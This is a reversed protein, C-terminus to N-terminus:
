NLKINFYYINLSLSLLIDIQFGFGDIARRFEQTEYRHQGSVPSIWSGPGGKAYAAPPEVCARTTGQAAPTEFRLVHEWGRPGVVRGLGAWRNRQSTHPIPASVLQWRVSPRMCARRPPSGHALHHLPAWSAGAQGKGRDRSRMCKRKNDGAPLSRLRGGTARPVLLHPASGRKADFCASRAASGNTAMSGRRGIRRRTRGRGGM